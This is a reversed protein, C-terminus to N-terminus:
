EKFIVETAIIIESSIPYEPPEFEVKPPKEPFPDKLAWNNDLENLNLFNKDISNRVGEKVIKSLIRELSPTCLKQRLLFNVDIGTILFLCRLLTDLPRLNYKPWNFPQNWSLWTLSLPTEKIPHPM